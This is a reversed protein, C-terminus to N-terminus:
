RFDGFYNNISFISLIYFEKLSKLKIEKNSCNKEEGTPVRTPAFIIKLRLKIFTRRHSLSHDFTKGCFM